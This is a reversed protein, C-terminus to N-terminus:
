LMDLFTIDELEGVRRLRRSVSPYGKVLSWQPPFSALKMKFANNSKTALVQLPCVPTSLLSAIIFSIADLGRGCIPFGIM